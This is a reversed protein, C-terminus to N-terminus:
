TQLAHLRQCWSFSFGSSVILAAGFAAAGATTRAPTRQAQQGSIEGWDRHTCESEFAVTTQVVLWSEDYSRSQNM